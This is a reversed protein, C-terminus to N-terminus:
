KVGASNTKGTEFFEIEEFAAPSLTVKGLIPHTASVEQTNWRELQFTLSQRDLLNARVNATQIEGASSKKAALDIQKLRAFPVEIKAKGAVAVTIKGDAISEFAGVIKDGNRLRVTDQKREAAPAPPEEFQGDWESVVLNSWRASGLGQHVFRIGTGTGVFEGADTWTKVLAGDVLLAILRRPKSVRVEFHASTKSALQPVPVSEFPQLPGTKKVGTLAATGNFDVLRLSYFGGFDPENDKNALNIPFWYGTYLALAEQLTGQWALDFQISAEDPLKVDRAISAAKTAYFAGDRYEWFGYDPVTTIKGATWGNTGTFGSFIRVARSDIPTITEIQARSIKLPGAPSSELSVKQEDIAAFQGEIQDGNVLHFMCLGPAPKNESQSSPFRIGSVAATTLELPQSADSRAWFIEREPEISNLSGSLVDGNRFFIRAPDASRVSDPTITQLNNARSRAPNFELQRINAANLTVPGFSESRGRVENTSWSQLHFSIKDSGALSARVESSGGSAINTADALIIETLREMPIALEKEGVSMIAKGDRVSKLAGGVEDRNVLRVLDNTRVSNTATAMPQTNWESIRINGIRLRPLSGISFGSTNQSYFMVGTGKAVFGNDDKWVNVREGNVLIEITANGKNARIEFRAKNERTMQPAPAQQGLNSLSIGGAGASIRQVAVVGPQIHIAYASKSYDLRDITETYIPVVLQFSSFWSLDFEISASGTLKFDRGIISNGPTEFGGDRFRWPQQGNGQVWGDSDRPGEYIAARVGFAVSRVAERPIKFDSGFWSNLGFERSDLATLSGSIEDGNRFYFRASSKFDTAVPQADKFQISDLNAPKLQFPKRAADHEWTVGRSEDISKLSGHLVSGDLFNLVDSPPTAPIPNTAQIQLPIVNINAGGQIILQQAHVSAPAFCWVGFM